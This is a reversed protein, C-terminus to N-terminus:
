DILQVMDFRRSAEAIVIIIIFFLFVCVCVCVCVRVCCFSVHSLVLIQFFFVAGNFAAVCRGRVLGDRGARAAMGFDALLM